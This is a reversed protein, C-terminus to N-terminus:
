HDSQQDEIAFGTEEDLQNVNEFSEEAEDLDSDAYNRLFHEYFSSSLDSEDSHESSSSSLASSSKEYVSNLAQRQEGIKIPKHLSTIDIDENDEIRPLTVQQASVSSKADIVQVVDKMEQVRRIGIQISQRRTQHQNNQQQQLSQSQVGGLPTTSEVKMSTPTSSPSTRLLHLLKQKEINEQGKMSEVIFHIIAGICLTPVVILVPYIQYLQVHVLITYGMTITSVLHIIMDQITLPIALFNSFFFLVVLSISRTFSSFKRNYDKSVDQEHHYSQKPWPTKYSLIIQAVKSSPFFHAVKYSVFLYKAANFESKDQENDSRGDGASTKAQICPRSEEHQYHNRHLFNERISELDNGANMEEQAQKRKHNEEEQLSRYFVVINEVVKHQVKAIDRMLLCPLLVHTVLASITSVMLIEMMLWIAFSQAWSRQRQSTQQVAFLLVYFLMLANLLIVFMWAVMKKRYIVGNSLLHTSHDRAQKHSLIEGKLAPLLDRQFLYLLRKNLDFSFHKDAKDKRANEIIKKELTFRNWVEIIEELLISRMDNKNITKSFCKM